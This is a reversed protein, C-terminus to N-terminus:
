KELSLFAQLGCGGIWSCVSYLLLIVVLFAPSWHCGREALCRMERKWLHLADDHGWLSLLLM